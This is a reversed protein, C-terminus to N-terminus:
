NDTHNGTLENREKQHGHRNTLNMFLTNSSSMAHHRNTSAVTNESNKRYRLALQVRDGEGERRTDCKRYISRRPTNRKEGKRAVTMKSPANELGKGTKM